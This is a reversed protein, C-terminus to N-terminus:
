SERRGQGQDDCEEIESFIASLAQALLSKRWKREQDFPVNSDGTPTVVAKGEVVRTALTARAVNQLATIM